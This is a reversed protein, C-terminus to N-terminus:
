RGAHLPAAHRDPPTGPKSKPNPMERVVRNGLLAQRKRIDKFILHVDFGFQASLRERVSRIEAVIPDNWM